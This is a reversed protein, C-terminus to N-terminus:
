TKGLCALFKNRKVTRFAFTDFHQVLLIRKCETTIEVKSLLIKAPRPIFSLSSSACSLSLSFSLKNLSINLFNNKGYQSQRWTGDM